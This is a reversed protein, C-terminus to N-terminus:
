CSPPTSFDKDPSPAPGYRAALMADVDALHKMLVDEARRMEARGRDDRDDLGALHLWSHVLYLTLEEHFPLGSELCAHAAVAPCIAIDGAHRDQPDGPFTMADTTDPDGFFDGHLRSCTEEDVFAIELSGDPVRFGPHAELARVSAEVSEGALSLRDDLVTLDLERSM